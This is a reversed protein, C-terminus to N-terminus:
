PAALKRAAENGPALKLAKEAETRSEAVRGMDRLLQAVEVRVAADDANWLAARFESLARERDGRGRHVRALLLHIRVSLPDLYAARNAEQLAGALDGTDLLRQGRVLLAAAVEADSRSEPGLSFPRESPLIREFRRSLDPAALSEYGPALAQVAKWEQDAEAVRGAKRLAWTLVVRTHRDLPALRTLAKLHGVAEDAQGESLLAWALNFVLDVGNPEMEVAKKLVDSAHSTAGPDRLLGLAHNNLAAPTPLTEVLSAYLRTAERYRGIELLAVGQLFRATRALPAEAPVRALVDHAATFERQELLIQGLALRAPHHQPAAALAKRLLRVRTQPDRAGLAAGYAKFAEFPVEVRQALFEERTLRPRAPGALAVDYALGHVLDAVTALPGTAVLPASLTGREVDLLRLAVTISDDKVDYTGTVLRDAALAEALRISTARTLAVAPIELAALARMRDAREVVPVGLVAMDRSVTDAVAEGVWPEARSAPPEPPLVLVPGPTAAAALLSAFVLATM